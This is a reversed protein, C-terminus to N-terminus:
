KKDEFEEPHLKKYKEKAKFIMPFYYDKIKKEARQNSDFGIASPLKDIEDLMKDILKSCEPIDVINKM